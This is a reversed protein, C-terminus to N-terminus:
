ELWLAEEALVRAFRGGARSLADLEAETYVILDVPVPVARTDLDLLREWPPRDSQALVVVLDLDSGVGWDSGRAASGVVGVRRVDPRDRRLREALARASALVADRAPWRLVASSSSRVPM